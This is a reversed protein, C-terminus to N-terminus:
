GRVMYVEEGGVFLYEGRIRERKLNKQRSKIEVWQLNKRGGIFKKKYLDRFGLVIFKKEVRYIEGRQQLDIYKKFREGRNIEGSM